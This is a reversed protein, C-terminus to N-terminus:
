SASRGRATPSRRRSCTPSRRPAGHREDGRASRRGLAPRRGPRAPLPRRRDGARPRRHAGAVGRRVLAQAPLPGVDARGRAAGPARGRRRRRRPGDRGTARRIALQIARWRLLHLAGPIIRGRPPTTARTSPRCASATATCCSAPSRSAWGPRAGRPARPPRGPPGRAVLRPIRRTARVHLPAARGDRPAPRLVPGPRGRRARDAAVFGEGVGAPPVGATTVSSSSAAPSRRASGSAPRSRSRRSFGRGRGPGALPVTVRHRSPQIEEIPHFGLAALRAPYGSRPRSRPTAPSSPSAAPAALHDALSGLREATRDAPQGPPSRAARCTPAGAASWGGARPPPRPGRVRGRLRPPRSGLRDRAPARGLGTVPPRARRRRRGDARGLRRARAPTAARISTLRRRGGFPARSTPAAPSGTAAGHGGSARRSAGPHLGAPRAPDLVLDWAGIYRVERGGFGTKFHAIGGTALGWLDYSTAGRERSTRIAEWKLLYNARSDGGDGDDRRVARRRPDGSRRPVPDRGGRRRPSPRVAAPRPRVPRVRGLRRPLGGRDPHPLRGSDATERYIRYFEPLASGDPTRRGHDGRTRAKNM